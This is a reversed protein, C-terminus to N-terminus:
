LDEPFRKLHEEVLADATRAISMCTLDMEKRIGPTIGHHSILDRMFLLHLDQKTM